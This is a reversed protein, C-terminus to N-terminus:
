DRQWGPCKRKLEQVFTIFTVVESTTSSEASHTELEHRASAIAQCTDRMASGLRSGFRNLIERQWNDYKANVKAQVQEYDVICHAGIYKATESNDFTSRARKIELLMAQWRTLDDGLFQLVYDSQLDWLAQYQLWIAVYSAAQTTRAEISGYAEFLSNSPLRSLLDKYSSSVLSRNGVTAASTVRHGPDYELVLNDYELDDADANAVVEYRAAQPRRQQCIAALWAHLQQIWSARANELPPDLYMVQNRIRLEHVLTRIQPTVEDDADVDKTSSSAPAQNRHHKRSPGSSNALLADATDSDDGVAPPARDFEAVWAHIARSLRMTLVQELRGDLEGVWQELNAYNDLNLRDILAQIRDLIATFNDQAYPCSSLERVAANIEDNLAILAEVKEQFLSVVGSFERVFTANRNSEHSDGTGASSTVFYQWKLGMGKRVCLMVDSRYGAALALVEPHQQLRHSAQRYIKTTEMLSVAYPYVRKGDRAMTVLTHPVQFGLWLLERVEKFLTILQADFSIGLQFANGTARHRTVLFVRGGVTLDRRSIDNYWADFLPRTDLKRRFSASDAQLRQGEAYLEWGRGLVDEVRRMYMDLQREIQRIWVIAGSVPPLDRLQSMMSAESRRYSRKFTDHLRRIDDKVSNILQTQYEQIAGRIKPRVFLANFKSFVRFMESANRATALRDRLRAIIQNEVRAVRENYATESHEWVNTGDPTVDLVDVIRVIDYALRIEDIASSDASGGGQTMVRVITQQLQEHQQRF